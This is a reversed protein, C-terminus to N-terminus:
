EATVLRDAVGSNGHAEASKLHLAFGAARDGLDPRLKMSPILYDGDNQRRYPIPETTWLTRLRARLRDLSPEDSALSYAIAARM